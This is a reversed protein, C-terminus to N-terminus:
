FGDNIVIETERERERKKVFYLGRWGVRGVDWVFVCM